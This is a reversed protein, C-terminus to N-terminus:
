LALAPLRKVLKLVSVNSANFLCFVVNPPKRTPVASVRALASNSSIMSMTSLPSDAAAAYEM